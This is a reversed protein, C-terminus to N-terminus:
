KNTTQNCQRKTTLAVQGEHAVLKAMRLPDVERALAIASPAKVTSERNGNICIFINKMFPYRHNKTVVMTATPPVKGLVAEEAIGM